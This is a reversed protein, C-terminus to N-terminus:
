LEIENTNKKLPADEIDKVIESINTKKSVYFSVGYISDDFDNVIEYMYNKACLKNYDISKDSLCLSTVHDQNSELKLIRNNKKFVYDEKDFIWGKAILSDGIKNLVEITNNYCDFSEKDDGLSYGM